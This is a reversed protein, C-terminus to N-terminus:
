DCEVDFYTEFVSRLECSVFDRVDYESYHIYKQAWYTKSESYNEVWNYNKESGNTSWPVLFAPNECLGYRNVISLLPEKTLLLCYGSLKERESREANAILSSCLLCYNRSCSTQSQWSANARKFTSCSNSKKAKLWAQRMGQEQNVLPTMAAMM